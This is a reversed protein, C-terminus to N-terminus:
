LQTILLDILRSYDYASRLYLLLLSIGGRTGLFALIPGNHATGRGPLTHTHSHALTRTRSLSLELSHSRPLSLPHSLASTWSTPVMALQAHPAAVQAHWRNLRPVYYFRNHNKRHEALYIMGVRKNLTRVRLSVCCIKTHEAILDM